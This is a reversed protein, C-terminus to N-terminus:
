RRVLDEMMESKNSSLLEAANDQLKTDPPIFILGKISNYPPALGKQRVFSEWILM